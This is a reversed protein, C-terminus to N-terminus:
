PRTPYLPALLPGPTVPRPKERFGRRLVRWLSKGQWRHDGPGYLARQLTHIEAEGRSLRQALSTLNTPPDHPWHKAGWILLLRAAAPADGRRCATRLRRRPALPPPARRCHRQREWAWLTGLWLLTLSVAVWLWPSDRDAVWPAVRPSASPEPAARPSVAPSPPLPLTAPLVTIERAPLNAVRERQNTTDWWHLRLAPLRMVGPQEPIYAVRQRLSGVVGYESLHDETEAQEPYHRVQQPPVPDLVPLHAASLGEARIQVTRTIPEGVHIESNSSSWHEDLSLRSSPLWHAGQYDDPRPQVQLTRAPGQVQVRRGRDTAFYSLQGAQDLDAVQGQFSLAPIRWAGSHEPFLAYRREVVRYRRGDRTVQYSRDEGLPTVVAARPEPAALQGELLPLAYYLRVMMRVQSQVYPTEPSIKVELFLDGGHQGTGSAPASTVQLSLPPTRWDGVELGPIRIEGVRRPELEVTWRTRPVPQGAVTFSQRSSSAQILDFDTFLPILDPQRDATDGSAEIILTVTEGVFVRDREFFARIEQAGAVSLWGGLLLWLIAGWHRAVGHRAM